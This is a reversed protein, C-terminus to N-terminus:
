DSDRVRRERILRVDEKVRARVSRYLPVVHPLCCLCIVFMGLVFLVPSGTVWESSSLYDNIFHMAITAHLGYRLYLYGAIVGFLFTPFFKWTAWNDLHALGFMTSSFLVFVVMWREYKAGGFLYRWWPCDTRKLLLAVILCPVGVMFLRCLIEEYVSANMLSLAMKADDDKASIPTDGIDVGWAIILIMFAYEVVLMLGMAITGRYAATDSLARVDGHNNRVAMFAQYIMLAFCATVIVTELVYLVKTGADNLTFLDVIHPTIYYLTFEKGEVYSFVEGTMSWGICVQFFMILMCQIAALLGTTFIFGYKRRRVPAFAAPSSANLREGCYPCFSAGGAKFEQCRDCTM